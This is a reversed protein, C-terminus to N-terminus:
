PNHRPIPEARLGFSKMRGANMAAWRECEAKGVTRPARIMINDASEEIVVGAYRLIEVLLEGSIHKKSISDVKALLIVHHKM